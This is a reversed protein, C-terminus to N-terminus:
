KGSKRLASLQDLPTVENAKRKKKTIKIVVLILIIAIILSFIGLGKIFKALLLELGCLYYKAFLRQPVNALEPVPTMVNLKFNYVGESFTPVAILIIPKDIVGNNWALGGNFEKKVVERNKDDTIIFNFKLANLKEPNYQGNPLELYISEGHSIACTQKFKGSFEIKKSFDISINMPKIKRWNDFNNSIHYGDFLCKIGFGILILAIILAISRFIPIKNM